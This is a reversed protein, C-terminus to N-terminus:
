SIEVEVEVEAEIEVELEVDAEIEIEPVELEIEIEVEPAEFEIEIEVEPAEFEIEVEVQPAEIEIEFEVQPEVELCIIPAGIEIEVNGGSELDFVVEGGYVLGASQKKSKCYCCAFIITFIWALAPDVVYYIIIGANFSFNNNLVLCVYVSYASWGIAYIGFIIAQVLWTTTCNAKGSVQQNYNYDVNGGVEIEVIPANLNGNNVDGTFELCVEPTDVEVVIEVDIEAELDVNVEFNPAEIELEIEPAEIEIEVEIEPAEIEIEVEVEPVEIEVEIEINAELELDM